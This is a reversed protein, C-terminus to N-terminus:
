PFSQFGARDPCPQASASNKGFRGWSMLTPIGAPVQSCFAAEKLSARSVLESQVLKPLIWIKGWGAWLCKLQSGLQSRASFLQRRLRLEPFWSQSSLTQASAWKKGFKGLSMWTPIGAPVQSCFAAEKLSARSVLESQVFKPLTWIKGWGAWLCELQSGLQSRAAFLQKRLPVEPFM